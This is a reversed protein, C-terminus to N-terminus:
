SLVASVPLSLSCSVQKLAAELVAKEERLKQVREEGKAKSTHLKLNSEKRDGYMSIISPVDRTGALVTLLEYSRSDVEPLEESVPRFPTNVCPVPRFSTNVGPVPRFLTNVCPVPRFPTNVCPVFPEM